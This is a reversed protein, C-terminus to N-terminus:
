WCWSVATMAKPQADSLRQGMTVESMRGGMLASNLGV